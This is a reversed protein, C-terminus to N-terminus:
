ATLFPVAFFALRNLVRDCLAYCIVFRQKLDAGTVHRPGTIRAM